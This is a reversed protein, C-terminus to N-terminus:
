QPVGQTKWIILGSLLAHRITHTHEKPAADRGEEHGRYKSDQSNERVVYTSFMDRPMVKTYCGPGLHMNFPKCYWLRSRRIIGNRELVNGRLRFFSVCVKVSRVTGEDDIHM